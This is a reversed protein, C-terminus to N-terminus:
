NWIINKRKQYMIEAIEFQFPWDIDFCEIEDMIFFEPDGSKKFTGTYIENNIDEM